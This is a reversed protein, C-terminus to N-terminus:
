FSGGGVGGGGGGSFGGTGGSRRGSGGFGQGGTGGGSSTSNLGTSMNFTTVKDIASFFLSPSCRVYRRDASIVAMARMSAGEPLTVIVPQYGVAGGAYWPFPTFVTQRPMPAAARIAAPRTRPPWPTPIPRVPWNSRSWRSSSFPKSFPSTGSAASAVQQEQLSETRRGEALQFKVAVTDGVLPLSKNVRSQKETLYHTFIDVTVKNATVNGWVRRILVNYTGNFGKPCVYAVSSIGGIKEKSVQPSVGPVLAGGGTTRQNRYSCVAGAPEQVFLDIDADGTWSVVVVCDRTVAEDLAKRFRKAEAKRSKADLDALATEAAHYGKQWVSTM